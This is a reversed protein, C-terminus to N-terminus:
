RMRPVESGGGCLEEPPIYASWAEDVTKPYTTSPGFGQSNQHAVWGARFAHEGIAIDLDPDREDAM